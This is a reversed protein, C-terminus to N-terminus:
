EADEEMPSHHSQRSHYEIGNVTCDVLVHGFAVKNRSDHVEIRVPLYLNVTLKVFM